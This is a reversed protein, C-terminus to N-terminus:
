DFHSRRANRARPMMWSPNNNNIAVGTARTANETNAKRRSRSKVYTTSVRLTDGAQVTYNPASYPDNGPDTAIYSQDSNSYATPSSAGNQYPGNGWVVSHKQKLEEYAM